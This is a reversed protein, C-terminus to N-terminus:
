PRIEVATFDIDAAEELLTFARNAPTFQLNKSEPQLVYVRGVGLEEFRYYGFQNTLATRAVGTAADTLVIRVGAAIGKPNNVRGTISVSAATPALAQSFWFGGHVSYQTGTAAYTGISLAGAVPQAITGEAKYLASSSKEGGGPVVAHSLDYLASTQAFVCISCSSCIFLRFFARLLASLKTKFRM